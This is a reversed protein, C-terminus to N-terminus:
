VDVIFYNLIFCDRTNLYKIFLCVFFVYCSHQCVFGNHFPSVNYVSLGQIHEEFNDM